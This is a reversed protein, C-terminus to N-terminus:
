WGLTDIDKAQEMYKPKEYEALIARYFGEIEIARQGIRYSEDPLGRAVAEYFDKSVETYGSRLLMTFLTKPQFLFEISERTMEKAAKAASMKMLEEQTM